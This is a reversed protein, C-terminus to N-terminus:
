SQKKNKKLLYKDIFYSGISIFITMILAEKWSYVHLLVPVWILALFVVLAIILKM